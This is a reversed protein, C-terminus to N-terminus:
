ILTTELSELVLRVWDRATEVLSKNGKLLSRLDDNGTSTQILQIATDALSNTTNPFIISSGSPIKHMKRNVTDCQEFDSIMM